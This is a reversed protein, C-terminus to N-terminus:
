TATKAKGKLAELFSTQSHLYIIFSFVTKLKQLQATLDSDQWDESTTLYHNKHHHENIPPCESHLMQIFHKRNDYNSFLKM